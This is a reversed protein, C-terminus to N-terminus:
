QVHDDISKRESIIFKHAALNTPATIRSIYARGYCEAEWPHQRALSRSPFLCKLHTTISEASILGVRARTIIHSVPRGRRINRETPMAPSIHFCLSRSRMFHMGQTCLSCWLFHTANYTHSSTQFLLIMILCAVKHSRRTNTIINQHKNDCM